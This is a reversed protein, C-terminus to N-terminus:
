TAYAINTLDIEQTAQTVGVQNFFTIREAVSQYTWLSQSGYSAGIEVYSPVSNTTLRINWFGSAIKRMQTPVDSTEWYMDSAASYFTTPGWPMTPQAESLYDIFTICDAINTSGYIEFIQRDTQSLRWALPDLDSLHKVGFYYPSTPTMDVLHWYQQLLKSTRGRLWSIGNDWGREWCYGINHSAEFIDMCDGFRIEYESEPTDWFLFPWWGYANYFEQQTTLVNSRDWPDVDPGLPSNKPIVVERDNICTLGVGCAANQNHCINGYGFPKEIQIWVPIAPDYDYITEVWEVANEAVSTDQLGIYALEINVAWGAASIAALDTDNLEDFHYYIAGTSDPPFIWIRGPEM